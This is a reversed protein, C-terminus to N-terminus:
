SSHIIVQLEDRQAYRHPAEPIEMVEVNRGERKWKMCYALSGYPVTGDGSRRGVTSLVSSSCFSVLRNSLCATTNPSLSSFHLLAIDYGCTASGEMDPWFQFMPQPTQPHEYM